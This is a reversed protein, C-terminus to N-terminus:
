TRRRKKMKVRKTFSITRKAISAFGNVRRMARGLARPNTPNMSPRKWPRGDKRMRRPRGDRTVPWGVVQGQVVPVDPREVPPLPEQGPMVGRYTQPVPLQAPAAPAAAPSDGRTLLATAFDFGRNILVETLGGGSVQPGGGFTPTFGSTYMPMGTLEQFPTGLDVPVAPGTLSAPLRVQRDPLTVTEGTFSGEPQRGLNFTTEEVTAYQAPVAYTGTLEGRIARRVLM